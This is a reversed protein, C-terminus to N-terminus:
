VKSYFFVKNKIVKRDDCHFKPLSSLYERAEDASKKNLATHCASRPALVASDIGWPSHFTPCIYLSRLFLFSAYTLNEPSMHQASAYPLSPPFPPMPTCPTLQWKLGWHLSMQIFVQLFQPTHVGCLLTNWVPFLWHLPWSTPTHPPTQTIPPPQCSCILPPLLTPISTETRHPSSLKYPRPSERPAVHPAGTCLKSCLTSATLSGKNPFSREPQQTQFPGCCLPLPSRNPPQQWLGPKSM